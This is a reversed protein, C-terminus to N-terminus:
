ITNRNDYEQKIKLFKQYNEEKEYYESIEVQFVKYKPTLGMQKCTGEIYARLEVIGAENPTHIYFEPYELGNKDITARLFALPMLTTEVEVVPIQEGRFTYKWAEECLEYGLSIVQPIKKHITIWNKFDAYSRLTIWNIEYNEVPTAMWDLYLGLKKEM